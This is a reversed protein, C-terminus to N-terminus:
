YISEERVYHKPFEDEHCQADGGHDGDAEFDCDSCIFRWWEIVPEGRHKPESPVTVDHKGSM